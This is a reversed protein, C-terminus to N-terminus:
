RPELNAGEVTVRGVDGYVTWCIYRAEEQPVAKLKGLPGQYESRRLWGGPEAPVVYLKGDTGEIIWELQLPEDTAYYVRYSEPTIESGSQGTTVKVTEGDQGEEVRATAGAPLSALVAQSALSSHGIL